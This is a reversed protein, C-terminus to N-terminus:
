GAQSERGPLSQCRIRRRKELPAWDRWPCSEIVSARVGLSAFLGSLARQIQATHPGGSEPTTIQVRTGHQEIRYDPCDAAALMVARRVQDPFVPRCGGGSMDPLWLVQDRRGEISHLRRTARGCACPELNVHLVDDMAFRIFRQTTRSFDTILAVCRTKSADLWRPEFFISSENLHLAGAECSFGLVGETCQYIQQVPQAFCASIAKADDPELCEAVNIVQLPCIRLSGAHQKDALYRLLSAPAVVIDPKYGALPSLHADAPEVLDFFRFRIRWGEVTTYLNSNARLFLAVRLPRSFPNLVRRLSTHSLMRGLIAGAWRARERPSVLFLNPRGSTGSSSGVTIGEPLTGRFDRTSEARTAFEWARQLAVGPENFAAFDHLMTEKDIEPFQALPRGALSRYFAARGATRLFRQLARKQFAELAMRSSFRFGWRHRAFAAFFAWTEALASTM